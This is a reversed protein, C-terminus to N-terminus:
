AADSSSVFFPLVYFAGPYGLVIKYDNLLGIFATRQDGSLHQFYFKSHKHGDQVVYVKYDKDTPTLMTGSGALRMFEDPHMSGCFSCTKDRTWADDVANRDWPGFESVRRPCAFLDSM